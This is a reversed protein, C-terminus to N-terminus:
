NPHPAPIPVQGAPAPHQQLYKALQNPHEAWYEKWYAAWDGEHDDPIGNGNADVPETTDLTPSFHGPEGHLQGDLNPGGLSDPRHADQEIDDYNGTVVDAINQLAATGPHFYNSHGNYKPDEAEFRITGAGVEAPDDGFKDLMSIVDDSNSGVYVHGDPVNEYDANADDVADGPSGVLVIDDAALGKDAATGVVVSGYSHGIVTVKPRPGGGLAELGAVDSKLQAAGAEAHGTGVTAPDALSDPTDYGIWAVVATSKGPDSLRSQDYTNLANSTVNDMGTAVDTGVGPVVVALNDAADANGAVIAARGDGGFAGPQYIYLQTTIPAGTVPDVKSSTKELQDAVAAANALTKNEAYSLPEDTRFDESLPTIDQNLRIQNATNRDKAPIGDLKGILEPDAQILADQQAATLGRWWANVTGPDTNKPPLSPLTVPQDIALGPMAKKLLPLQALLQQGANAPGYTGPAVHCISDHIGAAAAKAATDVTSMVDDYQADIANIAATDAGDATPDDLDAAGTAGTHPHSQIEKLAANYKTRLDDVDSCAMGLATSWKTLADRAINMTDPWGAILTTLATTENDCATKGGGSWLKGLGAADHTVRDALGGVDVALEDITAALAKMASPEDPPYPYREAATM